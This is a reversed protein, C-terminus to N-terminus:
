NESKAKLELKFDREIENLINLIDVHKIEEMNNFDMLKHSWKKNPHKEKILHRLKQLVANRHNYKEEIELSSLRLACYLSYKQNILDDACKRDDNKNWNKEESLLSKALRVIELDQEIAPVKPNNNITFLISLNDIILNDFTLYDSRFRFMIQKFGARETITFETPVVVKNKFNISGIRPFQNFLTTSDIKTYTSDLEIVFGTYYKNACKGKLKDGQLLLQGNNQSVVSNLSILILFKLIVIAKM